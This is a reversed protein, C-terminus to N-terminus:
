KRNKKEKVKVWKIKSKRYVQGSVLVVGYMKDEGFM